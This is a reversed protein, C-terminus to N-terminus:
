DDKMRKELAGAIRSADRTLRRLSDLSIDIRTKVYLILFLFAMLVIFSFIPLIIRFYESIQTLISM